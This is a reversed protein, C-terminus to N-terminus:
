PKNAAKGHNMGAFNVVDLLWQVIRDDSTNPTWRAMTAFAGVVVLLDDVHAAIWSGIQTLVEM